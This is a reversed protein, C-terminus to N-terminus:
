APGRHRPPLGVEGVSNVTAAAQLGRRVAGDSNVYLWEGFRGVPLIRRATCWDIIHAKARLSATTYVPYARDVRRVDSAVIEDGDGLVGVLHLAAVAAELPDGDPPPKHESYSIELQLAKHGPPSVEPASNHNLVLKHFPVRPDACYLRQRSDPRDSRVDLSVLLLSNAVLDAAACRVDDPAGVLCRALDDLPMTSILWDYDFVRNDHTTVTQNAVDVRVVRGITRSKETRAAYGAFLSQFGGAAPYRVGANPFDSYRRPRLAGEVIDAVPPQVIREGVWAPVISDISTAWVKENYPGLFHGVIGPGFRALLFERLNRPEAQLAPRDALGALCDRVIEFPLGHLHSQFPYRVTVGDVWVRADRPQVHLTADRALIEEVERDSTFFAHGGFDFISDGVRFSRCLGGPEAEAEILTVETGIAAAAAM